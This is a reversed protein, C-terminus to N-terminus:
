LEGRMTKVVRDLVSLIKEKDWRKSDRLKDTLEELIESQECVLSHWGENSVEMSHFDTHALEEAYAMDTDVEQISDIVYEAVDRSVRDELLQYLDDDTYIPFGEPNLLMRIM